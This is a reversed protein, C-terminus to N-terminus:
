HVPQFQSIQVSDWTGPVRYFSCGITCVSLCVSPRADRNISQIPGTPQRLSLFFVTVLYGPPCIQYLFTWSEALLWGVQTAPTAVLGITLICHAALVVQLALAVLHLALWPLVEDPRGRSSGLFLLLNSTLLLLLLVLELLVSKEWTPPTLWETVQPTDGITFQIRPMALM